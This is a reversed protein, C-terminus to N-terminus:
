GEDCQQRIVTVGVHVAQECLRGALRRHCARGCQAGAMGASGVQQSDVTFGARM